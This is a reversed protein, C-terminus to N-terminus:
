RIALCDITTGLCLTGRRQRELISISSVTTPAVSDLRQFRVCAKQRRRERGSSQTKPPSTTISRRPRKNTTRARCFAGRLHCRLIVGKELSRAFLQHRFSVLSSDHSSPLLEDREFDPPYVMEAYSVLGGPLRFLVCPPGQAPLMELPSRLAVADFRSGTVARLRRIDNAPVESAVAMQPWSDLLPTRVSVILDLGGLIARKGNGSAARWIVDVQLPRLTTEPYSVVLDSGRIHWDINQPSCATTAASAREQHSPPEPHMPLLDPISPAALRCAPVAQGGVTTLHFGEHPRALDIEGAVHAPSFRAILRAHGLRM